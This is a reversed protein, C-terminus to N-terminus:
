ASNGVATSRYENTKRHEMRSDIYQILTLFPCKGETDAVLVTFCSNNDSSRESIAPGRACSGLPCVLAIEIGNSHTVNM